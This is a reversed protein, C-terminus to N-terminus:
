KWLINGWNLLLLVVCTVERKGNPPHLHPRSRGWTSATPVFRPWMCIGPISLAGRKVSLSSSQTKKKLGVVAHARSIRATVCNKPWTKSNRVLDGGRHNDNEWVNDNLDDVNYDDNHDDNYDDNYDHYDLDHDNRPCSLLPSQLWQQQRTRKYQLKWVGRCTIIMMITITMTILIIM